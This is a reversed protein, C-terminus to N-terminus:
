GGTAPPPQKGRLRRRPILPQPPGPPLGAETPPEGAEAEMPPGAAPGAAEPEPPAAAEQSTPPSWGALGPGPPPPLEPLPAVWELDLPLEEIVPGAALM